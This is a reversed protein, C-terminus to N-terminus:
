YSITPDKIFGSYKLGNIMMDVIFIFLKENWIKSNPTFTTFYKNTLSDISPDENYWEILANKVKFYLEEMEDLIQKFHKDKWVGFHALCISNLEDKMNRLKDFTKLLEEEHFEPPMIPVFFADQDLRELIADGVFINRNTRDLLAISDMTHGFFNIIELELGDLDLIDGENLPTIEGEFPYVDGMGEFGKMMKEPNKLNQVANESALLEINMDKLSSVMKSIGQAHDWHSHTLLIKHIPYLGLDKLKKLIKRVKLTEGTDIMLRTGNNEIIYISFFKQMGMTMGDILYYNNDFKGESNITVM